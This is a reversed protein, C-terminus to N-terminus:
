QEEGAEAEAGEKAYRVLEFKSPDIRIRFDGLKAEGGEFGAKVVVYFVESIQIKAYSICGFIRQGPPCKEPLTSEEFAIESNGHAEFDQELYSSSRHVLLTSGTANEISLYCRVSKKTEEVREVVVKVGGRVQSASAMLAAVTENFVPIESFQLGSAQLVAMPTDVGFADSRVEVGGIKGTAYLCSGEQLAEGQSPCVLIFSLTHSDDAWCLYARKGHLSLEGYVQGPIMEVARGVHEQPNSLLASIDAAEIPPGAAAQPACSAASILAM